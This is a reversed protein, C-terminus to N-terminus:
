VNLEEQLLRRYRRAARGFQMGDASGALNKAALTSYGLRFALYARRFFPLRATARRDGSLDVYSQLFLAALDPSLRFEIITAALDWAIDTCGPYFHDAHHDIGDTKVLATGAALWEHPFMRGDLATPPASEPLPLSGLRDAWLGGVGESINSRVMELLSAPPTGETAPFDQRLRALYDAMVEVERRGAHRWTLPRGPVFRTLLFGDAAGVVPPGFGMEALRAARERAGIGRRGFGAFRAMVLAQPDVRRWGAPSSPIGLGAPFALFKRREHQPQVPPTDVPARLHRRWCGASFDIFDRGPLVRALLTVPLGLEEPETVIRRHRPWRRRAAASVFGSGDANWSPFFVIREEAIGWAALAEAVCCISSGSLGPGEDIVLFHASRSHDRLEAALPSLPRFVRDFPHGRPRVTHLRVACGREALAAAVVAALSAGIQRIGLCVATPPAFEAYFRRASAVYTEPYLGYWAYGESEAAMVTAPLPFSGLREVAGTLQELGVRLAERRGDWSDLFIKGLALGARNLTRELPGEGDAEPNLADAIAGQLEDFAVLLDRVEGHDPSKAALRAAEARFSALLGATGRLRRTDRYVLM